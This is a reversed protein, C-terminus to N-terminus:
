WFTGRSREKNETLNEGFYKNGANMKQPKPKSLHLVSSWPSLSHLDNTVKLHIHTSHINYVQKVGLAYNLRLHM